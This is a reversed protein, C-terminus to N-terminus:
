AARRASPIPRRDVADVVDDFAEGIGFPDGGDAVRDARVVHEDGITMVAVADGAGVAVLDSSRGAGGLRRRFQREREDALEDGVLEADVGDVPQIRRGAEVLETVSEGHREVELGGTRDIARGQRPHALATRQAEDVRRAVAGPQEGLGAHEVPDAGEVARPELVREAVDVTSTM